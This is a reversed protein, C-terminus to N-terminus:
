VQIAEEGSIEEEKEELEQHVIIEPKKEILPSQTVGKNGLRFCVWSNIMFLVIILIAEYSM